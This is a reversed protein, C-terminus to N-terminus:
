RGGEKDLRKAVRAYEYAAPHKPQYEFLTMGAGAAESIASAYSIKDLLKDGFHKRLKMMIRPTKGVRRDNITPLVFDVRRGALAVTRFFRMMGRIALMEPPVPVIIERAYLLVNVLLADSGPATDIVVYDLRGSDTFSLARGLVGEPEVGAQQAIEQLHAKVGALKEGAPLLYLRKRAEVICKKPTVEGLILEALGAKFQDLGLHAACQDQTDTDVLLVQRGMAALAFAVHVSSTTKGTGGKEIAFAISRM